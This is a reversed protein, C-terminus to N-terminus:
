FDDDDDDLGSAEAVAAAQRHVEKLGTFDELFGPENFARLLFAFGDTRYQRVARASCATCCSYAQGDILMSAYSPLSGRVQHPLLGLPTSAEGDPKDAPAAHGLPHHELSVLLEVALASAVMSLGPRTVTCQQDLTRDRTSNIPAVVDNCFYCGLRRSAAAAEADRAEAEARGAGSAGGEEDAAVPAGARAPEAAREAPPPEAGPGKGHRMVLYSDFGLAATIALKDQEACLLAPLWRSERTDTLLFVADHARVLGELQAVAARVGELEAEAVPHGPMPVALAHGTARAGPFIGRVAEAAAVAKPRREHAACDAFTFLSQRVPNSHSVSGGDVFSVTRVGWGLLARAVNCGLTGAGILLVRTSALREPQLQPLLRWRMLRLNLDVSAEALAAPDLQGRMCVFRPGLMGRANREWGVGVPPSAAGGSEEAEPRLRVSLALSACARRLGAAAEAAPARAPERWCVVRVTQPAHPQARAWMLLNRLPWGPHPGHAVPDAFALMPPQQGHVAAQACWESWVGLPGVECAGREDRLTPEGVRAALGRAHVRVAFFSAIGQGASAGAASAAESHAERLADISLPALADDLRVPAAASFPTAPALAPFAFWYYYEHSKLDAYTLALVRSLSRPCALELEVRLEAAAREMMRAKDARKFEELTNTSVLVGHLLHTDPPAERRLQVPSTFAASDVFALSASRGHASVEFRASVPIPTDDLMLEDLKRRGLERWFGVDPASSFPVFQLPQM